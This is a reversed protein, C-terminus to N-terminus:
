FNPLKHLSYQSNHKMVIPIRNQCPNLKSEFVLFFQNVFYNVSRRYHALSGAYYQSITQFIEVIAKTQKMVCFLNSSTVVITFLPMKSPFTKQISVFKKGFYWIGPSALSSHYNQQKLLRIIEDAVRSFVPPYLLLEM